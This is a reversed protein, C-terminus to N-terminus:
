EADGVLERVRALTDRLKANDRELKQFSDAQIKLRSRLDDCKAQLSLATGEIDGLEGVLGNIRMNLEDREATLKDITDLYDKTTAYPTCRACLERETIAAQYDLWHLMVELMREPTFAKYTAIDIWERVDAELEERTDCGSGNQAGNEVNAPESDCDADDPRCAGRPHGIRTIEPQEVPEGTAAHRRTGPTIAINPWDGSKKLAEDM